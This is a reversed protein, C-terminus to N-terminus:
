RVLLMGVPIHQYIKPICTCIYQISQYLTGGINLNSTAWYQAKEVNNAVQYKWFGKCASSMSITM